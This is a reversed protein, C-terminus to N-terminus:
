ESDARAAMEDPVAEELVAEIRSYVTEFSGVGDIQYFCDEDEYYSIVPRTEEHYVQLRQRIAEPRDDKRQIILSEHVDPPPPRFDLHYNEGTEKHVRRRSLREVIQEDSVDILIVADLPANHEDLFATLWEAQQLTRPYGDLVFDDFQHEAIAEEALTRVLEDPVLKGATVYEKAEKGVPTEENMATRLLDGTSVHVLGQRRVLQEAQTGKGAGPPGFLAIRM